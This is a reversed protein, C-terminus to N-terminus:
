HTHGHDHEHDHDCCQDELDAETAERAETVHVDFHLTQGALPHNGDLQVVKDGVETVTYIRTDKGPLTLRFQDGVSVAEDKPFEGKSIKAILQADYTGYAKEPAVTIKKKDGAKLAKLENELGPIIQEQGEVYSLPDSGQSSDLTEGRDNTLVYHFTVVRSKM